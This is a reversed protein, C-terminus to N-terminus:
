ALLRILAQSLLEAAALANQRTDGATGMELLLAGPSFEQNYSSNRICIPRCIGDCQRQLLAQLKVALSMNEQWNPHPWGSRDTGVVVMIRSAATGDPLTVTSTAQNGNGDEYADRHLDLVIRISPYERLYDQMQKKSSNYAGTYSPHDHLTTDHIVRIGAAELRRAVLTGISVMNYEPDLTRYAVTEPYGETNQFSETAHTHYILVQPGEPDTPEPLSRTLWGEADLPVSAYNSFRIMAAEEASFVPPEIVPVTEEPESPVEPAPSLAPVRPSFWRGTGWFLLLQTMREPVRGAILRQVPATHLLQLLVLSVAAAALLRLLRESGKM